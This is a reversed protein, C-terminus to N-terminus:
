KSIRIGKYNYFSMGLDLQNKGEMIDVQAVDSEVPSFTATFPLGGSPITIGEGSRSIAVLDYTRGSIKDRVYFSHENGPAYLTVTGSCKKLFFFVKFGSRGKVIKTIEPACESQPRERISPYNIVPEASTVIVPPKAVIQTNEGSNKGTNSGKPDTPDKPGQSKDRNTTDGIKKDNQAIIHIAEKGGTTDKLPPITDTKKVLDDTLGSPKMFSKIAFVGGAMAIITVAAIVLPNNRKKKKKDDDDLITERGDKKVPPWEGTEVYHNAMKELQAATPRQWTDKELCSKIIADLGRSYQPPLDKVIPDSMQMLGGLDGFPPDGTIMEYLSAGLAWVDTAKVPDTNTRQRDYLEPARYPPPTIGSQISAIDSKGISQTQMKITNRVKLSLGLDALYYNGYQDLLFNNPKVDQHVFDNAHLYKMVGGIQQLCKAIEQETYEGIRRSGNGGSYFRMVLYPYGNFRGFHLVNLLNSHQLEFLKKYEAEINRIGDEDLKPYIKLAVTNGAVMYKAEWVETFGGTDILKRLEYQGDFLQGEQLSLM